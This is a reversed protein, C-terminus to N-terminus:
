TVSSYQMENRNPDDNVPCFHTTVPLSKCTLVYARTLAAAVLTSRRKIESTSSDHQINDSKLINIELIYSYMLDILERYPICFLTWIQSSKILHM